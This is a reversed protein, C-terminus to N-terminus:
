YAARMIGLLEAEAHQKGALPQVAEVLDGDSLGFSASQPRRFLADRAALAEYFVEACRLEPAAVGVKEQTGAASFGAQESLEAVSLTTPVAFHPLV